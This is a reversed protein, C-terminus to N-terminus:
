WDGAYDVRYPQAQKELFFRQLEVLQRLHLLDHTVWSVFMDGAKIEGFPAEYLMEWDALDSNDLWALAENRLRMYRNLTEFLDGQNYERESVWGQPDIEPWSKDSKELIMKLRVPFDFEEEDALHSVVELISWTEPDPKWRAQDEPVGQALCAVRDRNLALQRKLYDIDM